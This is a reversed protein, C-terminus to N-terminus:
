HQPCYSPPVVSPLPCHVTALLFTLSQTGRILRFVVCFQAVGHMVCIVMSCLACVSSLFSFQFHFFFVYTSQMVFVLYGQYPLLYILIRSTGLGVTKSYWINHPKRYILYSKREMQCDGLIIPKVKCYYSNTETNSYTNSNYIYMEHQLVHCIRNM